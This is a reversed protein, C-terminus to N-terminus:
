DTLGVMIDDVWSWSEPESETQPELEHEWLDEFYSFAELEEIHSDNLFTEM